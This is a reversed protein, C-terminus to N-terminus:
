KIKNAFAANVSIISAVVIVFAISGTVLLITGVTNKEKEAFNVGKSDYDLVNGQKDFAFKVYQSRLTFQKVTVSKTNISDIIPNYTGNIRVKTNSAFTSTSDCNYLWETVGNTERKEDPLGFQKIVAEKTRFSQMVQRHSYIVKTCSCLSLLSILIMSGTLLKKM